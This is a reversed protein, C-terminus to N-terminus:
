AVVPSEVREVVLVVLSGELWVAWWVVLGVVLGESELLLSEM